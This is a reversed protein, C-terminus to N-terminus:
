GFCYVAGDEAGIVLRRGGVAPSATFRSGATYRWVEAGDSLRVRYINGDSAGFIVHGVNIVPSSDVDGRTAFTWVTDGTTADVRFVSNSRSAFVVADGIVAASAHIAANRGPDERSWLLKGDSVRVAYYSGEM